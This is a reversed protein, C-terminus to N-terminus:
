RVLGRKRLYGLVLKEFPVQNTTFLYSMGRRTCFEYLGTRYAALNDKYRKLLPASVTVEAEDDDEIDTLKLDGTYPPEVEEHSLVQIAYVDMNRAILYRLGEEYGGKDMFDSLLVVVGRGPCKLSFQRLSRGLDSPGAPEVTNLFNMLRWLSRRGRLGPTTQTVRDNFVEVVVRDLNTLGIFGLAAAVQKAYHLKTPTGFEMSRSNDLLIYFHLDEEELFLRLFLRDLRGFLNWDLFRLDDGVVYPRFDAFEVSQGKKKSLREGKMRGLFIKRSVIELQELRNLFQPDLLPPPAVDPM